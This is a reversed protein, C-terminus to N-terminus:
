TTIYQLNLLEALKSSFDELPERNRQRAWDNVAGFIGWSILQARLNGSSNGSTSVWHNLREQIQGQIETEFMPRFQQDVPSCHSNMESLIDCVAEILSHLNQLSYTAKLPVRKALAQAFREQIMWTFLSYKDDYHAYFTARNITARQAIDQVTIASLNKEQLLTEMAQMILQRTRQIRPDLKTNASSNIMM